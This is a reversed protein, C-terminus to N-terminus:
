IGIGANSLWTAGIRCLCHPTFKELNTYGLFTFSKIQAALENKRIINNKHSVM